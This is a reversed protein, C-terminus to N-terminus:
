LCDSRSRPRPILGEALGSGVCSLMFMSAVRVSMSADLPIRVWSGLTQSRSSMEYRLNLPWQSRSKKYSTDVFRKIIEINAELTLKNTFKFCCIRLLLATQRGTDPNISFFGFPNGATIRFTLRQTPDLDYDEAKLEVVV